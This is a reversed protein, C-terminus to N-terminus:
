SRRFFEAYGPHRQVAQHFFAAQMLSMLSILVAM